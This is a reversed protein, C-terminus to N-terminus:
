EKIVVFRRKQKDYILRAGSEDDKGLPYDNQENFKKQAWEDFFSDMKRLVTAVANFERRQDALELFEIINKPIHKREVNREFVEHLNEYNLQDEIEEVSYGKAKLIAYATSPSRNAGAHCHIHVPKDGTYYENVVRLAGFFPAHGWVGIENIPFWFAPFGLKQLDFTSCPSDSVNISVCYNEIIKKPEIVWDGSLVKPTGTVVFIKPKKM